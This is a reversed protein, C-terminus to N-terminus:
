WNRLKKTQVGIKRHGKQDVLTMKALKNTVLLEPLIGHPGQLKKTMVNQHPEGFHIQKQSVMTRIHHDGRSLSNDKLLLTGELLSGELSIENLTGLDVEVIEGRLELMETTEIMEIVENMGTMGEEAMELDTEEDEVKGDQEERIDITEIEVTMDKVIEGEQDPDIEIEQVEVNAVEVTTLSHVIMLGLEKALHDKFKLMM